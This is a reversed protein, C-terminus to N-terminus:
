SHPRAPLRCRRPLRLRDGQRAAKARRHEGVVYAMGPMESIRRIAGNVDIGPAADIVLIIRRRRAAKEDRELVGFAAAMGVQDDTKTFRRCGSAVAAGADPEVFVAEKGLDVIADDAVSQTIALYRGFSLRFGDDGAQWEGAIMRHVGNRDVRLAAEENIEAGRCIGALRFVPHRM